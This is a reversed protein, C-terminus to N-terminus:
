LVICFIAYITNQGQGIISKIWPLYAEVEGYVSVGKASGCRPKETGDYIFSAVGIVVSYGGENM